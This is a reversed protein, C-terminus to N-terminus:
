LGKAGGLGGRRPRLRLEAYPRGFELVGYGGERKDYGAGPGFYDAPVFAAGGNEVIFPDANGLAARWRGTEARTKSTCLVVPIGAEALADLAPRAPEFFYTAHDLLTGDLDTFVVLPIRRM